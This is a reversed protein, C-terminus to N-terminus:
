RELDRALVSRRRFLWAWARPQFNKRISDNAAAFSLMRIHDQLDGATGCCYLIEDRTVFRRTRPLSSPQDVFILWLSLRGIGNATATCACRKPGACHGFEPTRCSREQMRDASCTARLCAGVASCSRGLGLAFIRGSAITRPRSRYCKSTIGCIGQREAAIGYDSEPWAAGQGHCPRLSFWSSSGFPFAPNPRTPQRPALRARTM